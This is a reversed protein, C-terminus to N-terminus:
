IEKETDKCKGLGSDVDLKRKASNNPSFFGFRSLTQQSM